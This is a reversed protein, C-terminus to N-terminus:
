KDVHRVGLPTRHDELILYVECVPISLLLGSLKRLRLGWDRHEHSVGKFFRQSDNRSVIPDPSPSSSLVIM